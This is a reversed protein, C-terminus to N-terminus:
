QELRALLAPAIILSATIRVLHIVAVFAAEANLAVAIISMEAIGGPSFAIVYTIVDGSFLQAAMVGLSLAIVIQTLVLCLARVAVRRLAARGLDGFKSGLNIGLVLQVIEIVFRPIQFDTLNSLHLAASLAFPILLASAKLDFRRELYVGALLCFGFLLWGDVTMYQSATAAVDATGIEIHFLYEILLPITLVVLTIRFLHSTAVQLHDCGPRESMMSMEAIGGPISSLLATAGDIKFVRNLLLFGSGITLVMSAALVLLAGWSHLVLQLFTATIGAGLLTGVASRVLPMLPKSRIQPLGLYQIVATTALSGILWGLTVGFYACLWGGLIPLTLSLATLYHKSIM